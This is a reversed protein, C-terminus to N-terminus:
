SRKRPDKRRGRGGAVLGGRRSRGLWFGACRCAGSRIQQQAHLPDAPSVESDVGGASSSVSHSGGVGNIQAALGGQM